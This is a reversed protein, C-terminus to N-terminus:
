RIKTNNVLNSNYITKLFNVMELYLELADDNKNEKIKDLVRVLYVQILRKSLEVADDDHVLAIALKPGVIDYEKLVNDYRSDKELVNIRFNHLLSICEYDDSLGLKNLIASVIYWRRNLDYYDKYPDYKYYSCKRETLDYYQKRYTCYCHNKTRVYDNTNMHQCSGCCGDFTNM